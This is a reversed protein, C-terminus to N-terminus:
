ERTKPDLRTSATEALGLAGMQGDPEAQWGGGLAKILLVSATLRRVQINAASLQAALFADEAIVVELYTTAGAQYRDNAQELETHTADVAAMESEHEQQLQRLAALADEVEEYAVTVAKRYDAVQEEYVARAADTQARRRGGDFVTLLATPGVSWLQSPASLWNSTTTSEFGGMAALSFVPFYAARAVGISANASAVRREAAAVDPRRELLASPLGPDVPPPDLEIPLPQPALEFRTAQRDLLVAIAHETQSRRLAIERAQVRATELQARAQALDTLPVAGGEYLNRNLEEAREYEAVTQNLLLQQADESRLTFYDIALEAHLSLEIIALDATSAQVASRAAEVSNRVRGFADIEYSLSMALQLNNQAPPKSTSYQPANVSTRTRSASASAAVTPFYASRELQMQARAQELRALAAKLDQNSLTVQEELADLQADRFIAWWPDRPQIDTPEAVRWSGSERYSGPPTATPPVEYRPAFSCATLLGTTGVAFAFGRRTAQVAKGRVLRM